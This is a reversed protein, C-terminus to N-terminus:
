IHILSLESITGDGDSGSGSFSVSSDLEAIQPSISDISATPPYSALVIIQGQYDDDYQCSYNYSGVTDFTYSWSNGPLISGSDFEDGDEKVTHISSDDNTWIVTSDKLITLTNPDYDDDISVCFINGYSTVTFNM